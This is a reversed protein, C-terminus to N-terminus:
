QQQWFRSEASVGDELLITMLIADENNDRYYRIRRGVIDFGFKRYLEQAALNSVRVELTILSAGAKQAMSIMYILLRDGLGLRRFRPHTAITVIHAESGMLWYGGYALIPPLAEAREGTPRLVFYHSLQNHVLEHRYTDKSWPAPFCRQELEDVAALDRLEMPTAITEIPAM